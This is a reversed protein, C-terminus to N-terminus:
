PLVLPAVFCEGALLANNTSIWDSSVNAAYSLVQVLFTQSLDTLALLALCYLLHRKAETSSMNECM